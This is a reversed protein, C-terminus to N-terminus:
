GEQLRAGLRRLTAVVGPLPRPQHTSAQRLWAVSAADWHEAALGVRRYFDNWDPSYHEQFAAATLDIGFPALTAQYIALHSEFSDLLTGDLDFLIARLDGPHAPPKPSGLARSM